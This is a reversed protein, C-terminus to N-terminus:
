VVPGNWGSCRVVEELMKALAVKPALTDHEYVDRPTSENTGSQMAEARRDDVM